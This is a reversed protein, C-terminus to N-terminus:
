ASLQLHKTSAFSAIGAGAGTGLVTTGLVINARTPDGDSMHMTAVRGLVLGGIFGGVAGGVTIWASAARTMIEVNRHLWVRLM